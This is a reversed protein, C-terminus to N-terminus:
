KKLVIIKIGRAAGPVKALLGYELINEIWGMRSENIWYEIYEMGNMRKYIWGMRSENIWYEIYEVGNMRKYIWEM